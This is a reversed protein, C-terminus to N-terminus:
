LRPRPSPTPHVLGNEHRPTGFLYIRVLDLWSMQPIQYAKPTFPLSALFPDKNVVAKAHQEEAENDYLLDRIDCHYKEQLAAM